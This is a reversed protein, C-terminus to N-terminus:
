ARQRRPRLNRSAGLPGFAASACSRRWANPPPRAGLRDFTALAARLSATDGSAAQASAAEYPCGMALFGAAAGLADGRNWSAFPEAGLDRSVQHSGARASGCGSSVSPSTTAAHKPWRRADGRAPRRPRRRAFGGVVSGRSPRRRVALPAPPPRDPPRHRTGRRAAALRRRRRSAGAALGAHQPRRLPRYRRAAVGGLVDFAHM